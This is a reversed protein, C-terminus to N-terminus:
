YKTTQKLMKVYHETGGNTQQHRATSMNHEVKLAKVLERWINSVFIKDRDSIITKPIGFGRCYWDRLFIEAVEKATARTTTASLSVLKTLRDTIVLVCDEGNEAKPMPTFDMGISEFRNEPVPLNNILGQPLHNNPKTRQCIDCSSVYKIVDERMTEWFYNTKLKQFTWQSGQHGATPIEHNDAICQMRWNFKDTIFATTPTTICVM